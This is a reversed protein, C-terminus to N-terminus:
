LVDPIKGVQKAFVQVVHTPGEPTTIDSECTLILNKDSLAMTGPEPPRGPRQLTLLYKSGDKTLTAMGKMTGATDKIVAEPGGPKVTFTMNIKEERGSLYSFTLNQGNQVIRIAIPLPVMKKGGLTQSIMQWRGVLPDESWQAAALLAFGFFLILIKKM